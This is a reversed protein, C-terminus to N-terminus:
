GYKVIKEVKGVKEVKRVTGKSKQIGISKKRRM